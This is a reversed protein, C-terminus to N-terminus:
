PCQGSYAGRVWGIAECNSDCDDCDNEGEENSCPRKCVWLRYDFGADLGVTSNDSCWDGPCGSEIYKVITGSIVKEIYVCASCNCAGSCNTVKAGIDYTGGCGVQFVASSVCGATSNAACDNYVGSCVNDQAVICLPCQAFLQSTGLCLFVALTLAAALSFSAKRMAHSRFYLDGNTCRRPAGGQHVAVLIYNLSDTKDLAYLLACCKM